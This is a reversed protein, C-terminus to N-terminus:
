KLIKFGRKDVVSNLLEKLKEDDIMGSIQGAQYLQVLYVELRTALEPKVLKIRNLREIAKKTLIKGLVSKKLKEFAALQQLQEQTLEMM